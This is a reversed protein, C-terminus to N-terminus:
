LQLWALLPLLITHSPTSVVKSGPLVGDKDLRGKTNHLGVLYHLVIWM